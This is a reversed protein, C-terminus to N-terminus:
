LMCCLALKLKMLTSGKLLQYMCQIYPVSMFCPPTPLCTCQRPLPRLLLGKECLSRHAPILPSVSLFVFCNLKYEFLPLDAHAFLGLASHNLIACSPSPCQGIEEYFKYFALFKHTNRVGCFLLSSPARVCFRTVHPVRPEM